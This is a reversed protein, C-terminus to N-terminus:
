VVQSGPHEQSAKLITNHNQAKKICKDLGMMFVAKVRLVRPVKTITQCSPNAEHGGDSRGLGVRVLCKTMRHVRRADRAERETKGFELGPIRKKGIITRKKWLVLCIIIMPLSDKCITTSADNITVDKSSPTHNGSGRTSADKDQKTGDNGIFSMKRERTGSNVVVVGSLHSGHELFKRKKTRSTTDSM